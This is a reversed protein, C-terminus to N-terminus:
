SAGRRDIMGSRPEHVPYALEVDRAREDVVVPLRLRWSLDRARERLLLDRPGDKSINVEPAKHERDGKGQGASWALGTEAMYEVHEYLKRYRVHRM